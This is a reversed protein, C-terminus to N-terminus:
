SKWTKLNESLTDILNMEEISEKESVEGERRENATNYNTITSEALEIAQQADGLFNNLFISYNIVIGLLRTDTADLHEQALQLAEQYSHSTEEFYTPNASLDAFETIYRFCDGRLRQYYIISKVDDTNEAILSDIIRVTYMVTESLKLFASERIAPMLQIDNGHIGLEEDTLFLFDRYHYISKKHINEFLDQEESNLHNESVSILRNMTEIACETLGLDFEIWGKQFLEQRSLTM